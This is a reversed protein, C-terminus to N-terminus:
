PKVLYKICPSNSTAYPNHLKKFVEMENKICVGDSYDLKLAQFGRKQHKIKLVLGTAGM